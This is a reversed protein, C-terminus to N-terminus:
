WQCHPPLREYADDNQRELRLAADVRGRERMRRAQSVRRAYESLTDRVGFLPSGDGTHGCLRRVDDPGLAALEAAVALPDPECDLNPVGDPFPLPPALLGALADLEYLMAVAYARADAVLAPDPRATEGLEIAMRTTAISRLGWPPVNDASCHAALQATDRDTRMGSWSALRPGLPDADLPILTNAGGRHEGSCLGAALGRCKHRDGPVRHWLHRM